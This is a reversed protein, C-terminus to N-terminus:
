ASRSMEVWASLSLDLILRMKSGATLSANVGGALQLPFNAGSVGVGNTLAIASVFYFDVAYGDYINTTTIRTITTTGTIHFYNGPPVIAITAASAIDAGKGPSGSLPLWSSGGPYAIEVRKATNNYRLWITGHDSAPAAPFSANLAGADSELAIYNVPVGGPAIFPVDLAQSVYLPGPVKSGYNM